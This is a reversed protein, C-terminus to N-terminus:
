CKEDEVHVRNWESTLWYSGIEYGDLIVVMGDGQLRRYVEKVKRNRLPVFERERQQLIPLYEKCRRLQEIAREKKFNGEAIRKKRVKESREKKAKAIFEEADAIHKKSLEIKKKTGLVKNVAQDHAQETYYDIKEIFDEAKGIFFFSSNSGIFVRSKIQPLVDMLNTSVDKM